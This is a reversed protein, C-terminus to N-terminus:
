KITVEVPASLEFSGWRIELMAKGPDAPASMLTISLFPTTDDRKRFTLPAKFAIPLDAARGPLEFPDIRRTRAGTTNLFALSWTGGDASREVVLYYMGMQVPQGGIKLPLNTDLLTWFNQGVRWFKGVTLTDLAGPKDYDAKWEPRGYLIAVEGVSRNAANNWFLLRTEGRTATNDSFVQMGGSQAQSWSALGCLAALTLWFRRM